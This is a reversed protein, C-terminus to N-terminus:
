VKSDPNNQKSNQLYFMLSELVLQEFSKGSSKYESMINYQSSESKKGM